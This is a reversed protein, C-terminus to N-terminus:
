KLKITLKPGTRESYICDIQSEPPQYSILTQIDKKSLTRFEVIDYLHSKDPDNHPPRHIYVITDGNEFEYGLEWLSTNDSQDTSDYLNIEKYYLPSLSTM